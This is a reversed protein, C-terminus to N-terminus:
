GPHASGQTAALDLMAARFDAVTVVERGEVRWHRLLDQGIFGTSGGLVVRGTGPAASM